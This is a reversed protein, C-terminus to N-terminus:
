SYIEFLYVFVLPASFFLADFRDLIGGHGPILSGSDKIGFNRKLSSEFLDGLVGSITTIISVILWQHWSLEHIWLSLLVSIGATALFGGIAGEWTKKPSIAPSLQHKGALMGTLYAFVDNAWVLFLFGLLIWKHYEGEALGINPIFNLIALPIFVYIIGITQLLSKRLSGSSPRIVSVVAPIFLAPIALVLHKPSIFGNATMAILFYVLNGAVLGTIYQGKRNDTKEPLVQLEYYGANAVLLFLCALALPHWLIAGAFVIVLVIGAITRIM